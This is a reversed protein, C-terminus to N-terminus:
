LLALEAETFMGSKRLLKKLCDKFVAKARSNTAERAYIFGIVIQLQKKIDEVAVQNYFERNVRCMQLGTIHATSSIFDSYERLYEQLTNWMTTKNGLNIADFAKQSKRKAAMVTHTMEAATKALKAAKLSKEEYQIQLEQGQNKLAKM